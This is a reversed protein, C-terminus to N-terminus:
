YYQVDNTTRRHKKHPTKASSNTCYLVCEVCWMHIPTNDQSGGGRNTGVCWEGCPTWVQKNSTPNTVQNVVM